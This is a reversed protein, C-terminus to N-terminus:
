GDGAVAACEAGVRHGAAVLIEVLRIQQHQDAGVRGPAMRHQILAHEDVLLAAAGADHHDIRAPGVRDALVIQEESQFRARVGRQEASQQHVQGITAREVAIVDLAVGGTEVVRDCPRAAQGAADARGRQRGAQGLVVHRREELHKGIRQADDGQVGLADVLRRLAGVFDIGDDITM